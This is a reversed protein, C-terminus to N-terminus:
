MLICYLYGVQTLYSLPGNPFNKTVPTSKYTLDEPYLRKAGCWLLFVPRRGTKKNHHPAESLDFNSIKGYEVHGRKHTKIM